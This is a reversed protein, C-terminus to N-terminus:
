FKHFLYLQFAAIFVMFVAWTLQSDLSQPIFRYIAFFGFLIPIIVGFIRYVSYSQNVTLHEGNRQSFTARLPINFLPTTQLLVDANYNIDELEGRDFRFRVDGFMIDNYRNSSGGHKRHEQIAFVEDPRQSRSSAPLVGDICLMLNFGLIFYALTDFLNLLYKINAIQRRAAERARWQAYARAKRRNAEYANSASNYDYNQFNPEYTEAQPRPGVDMLFKYAESLAVFKDHADPDKSLDPHYIKSMRRYASKIESKTAGPALQLVALYQNRM